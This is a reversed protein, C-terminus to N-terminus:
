KKGSIKYEYHRILKFLQMKIDECKSMQNSLDFTTLDDSKEGNMIMLQSILECVSGHSINLFNIIQANSNRGFGEAINSSISVSSRLMQNGISFEDSRKMREVVARIDKALLISDKFVDSEFEKM